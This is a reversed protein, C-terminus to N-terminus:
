SGNRCMKSAKAAVKVLWHSRCFLSLKEQFFVFFMAAPHLGLIFESLCYRFIFSYKSNVM